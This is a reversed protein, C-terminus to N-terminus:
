SPFSSNKSASICSTFLKLPLIVSPATLVKTTQSGKLTPGGIRLFLIYVVLPNKPKGLNKLSCKQVIKEKHQTIDVSLM